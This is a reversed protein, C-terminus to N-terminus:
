AILCGLFIVSGFITFAIINKIIGILPFVIGFFLGYLIIFLGIYKCCCHAKCIFINPEPHFIGKQPVNNFNNQNFFDTNEESNFPSTTFANRKKEM